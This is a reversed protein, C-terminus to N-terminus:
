GWYCSKSISSTGPFLWHLTESTHVNIKASNGSIEESVSPSNGLRSLIYPYQKISLNPFIRAASQMSSQTSFSKSVGCPLTEFHPGQGTAGADAPGLRSICIRQHLKQGVLDSVRLHPGPLRHKLLSDLHTENM